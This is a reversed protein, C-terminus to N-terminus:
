KVKSCWKIITKTLDFKGFAPSVTYTYEQYYESLEEPSPFYEITLPLCAPRCLSEWNTFLESGSHSVWKPIHEWRHDNIGVRNGAIPSFPNVYNHRLYHKQVPTKGPSFKNMSKLYEAMPSLGRSESSCSSRSAKYDREQRSSSHHPKSVIKIPEISSSYQESDPNEKSKRMFIADEIRKSQVPRDFDRSWPNLSSSHKPVSSGLRYQAQKFSGHIDYGDEQTRDFYHGLNPDSGFPNELRKKRFYISESRQEFLLKDYSIALQRIEDESSVESSFINLPPISIMSQLDMQIDNMRCSPKFNSQNSIKRDQGDMDTWDWYSCDVWDPLMYIQRFYGSSLVEDDLYLYDLMIDRKLDNGKLFKDSKQVSSNITLLETETPSNASKIKSNFCFVPVAHLPPMSLCVLDLSVGNDIMRQTTLRCLKKDVNYVGTGPTIVVISLGTRTLDRDIFHKDFPNLALNAAELINGDTANSNTGSLTINGNKDKIQLINQRYSIFEKKL